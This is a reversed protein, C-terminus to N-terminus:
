EAAESMSVAGEAALLQRLSEAIEAGRVDECHSGRIVLKIVAGLNSDYQLFCELECGDSMKSQWCRKSIGMESESILSQGLAPILTRRLFM